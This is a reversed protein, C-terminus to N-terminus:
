AVKKSFKIKAHYINHERNTMLRLNELRNDDRIENIHHVIENNPNGPGYYKLQRDLHKEMVLIHQRVHGKHSRPHEPCHVLLYGSDNKIIGGTWRPHEKGKKGLNIKALNSTQERRKDNNIWQTRIADGDHRKPVGQITLQRRIFEPSTNTIKAIERLSLQEKTYLNSLDFGSIDIKRYGM